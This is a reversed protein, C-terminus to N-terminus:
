GSSFYYIGKGHRRGFAWGGNYRDGALVFAKFSFCPELLIISYWCLYYAPMSFVEILALMM